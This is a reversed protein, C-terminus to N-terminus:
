ACRLDVLTATANALDEEKILYGVIFMNNQAAAPSDDIAGCGATGTSCTIVKEDLEAGGTTINVVLPGFGRTQLWFYYSATVTIIPVGLPAQQADTPNVVLASYPNPYLDVDTNAIVWATKLGDYLTCVTVGGVTVTNSRIQYMEGVGTGETVILYGDELENATVAATVTVKKTGVPHAITVTDEHYPTTICATLLAPALAVTSNKAYVFQRGDALIIKTGLQCKKTSSEEYLDQAILRPGFIRQNQM